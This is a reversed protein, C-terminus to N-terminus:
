DAPASLDISIEDVVETVEAEMEEEPGLERRFHFPYVGKMLAIRRGSPDVYWAVRELAARLHKFRLADDPDIITEYGPDIPPSISHVLKHVEGQLIALTLERDGLRVQRVDGAPDAKLIVYIPPLLDCCAFARDWDALSFSTVTDADLRLDFETLGVAVCAKLLNKLHRCPTEDDISIQVRVAHPDVGRRRLADAVNQIEAPWATQDAFSRQAGPKLQLHSQNPDLVARLVPPRIWDAFWALGIAAVLVLALM